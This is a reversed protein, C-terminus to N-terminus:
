MIHSLLDNHLHPVFSSDTFSSHLFASISVRSFGSVVSSHHCSVVNPIHMVGSLMFVHGDINFIVFVALAHYGVFLLLAM